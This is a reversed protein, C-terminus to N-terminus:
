TAAGILIIDYTVSTGAGSNGIRLLDSVGAATVFGVADAQGALLAFVGGPRVRVQHTAAGVWSLFQTAAAGGVLVDNSNGAAAAVIIAKIRAFTLTTGLPDILVGALDLDETASAALTRQDHFIRNAQGAGAGDATTVAYNRSASNQSTGLDQTATLLSSVTVALQSNLPM